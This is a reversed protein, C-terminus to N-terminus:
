GRPQRQEKLARWVRQPTLPLDRIRVGTAEYLANAVSPAVAIIVGEGIGKAGYPGPGDGNEVLISTMEDPLDPCLPVRYDVLNPNLLQGGDFHMEEFLTHGIGMMASGHDQEVAQAPNIAKGIDSVLAQRVIRVRGTGRDVEVESAVFNLEWFPTPGGMPNDGRRGSYLGQGIVEGAGPGAYRAEMESPAEDPEPMAPQTRQLPGFYRDLLESYPLSTGDPRCGCM